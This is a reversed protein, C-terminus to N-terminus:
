VTVTVVPTFSTAPLASAVCDVHVNVVMASVVAGVTREVFGTFPVVTGAGAVIVTVNLSSMSLVVILPVVNVTFFVLSKDATAPVTEYLVDVFVAIKVGLEASKAPV